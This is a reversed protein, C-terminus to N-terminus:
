VNTTKSNKGNSTKSKKSMKAMQVISRTLDADSCAERVAQVLRLIAIHFTKRIKKETACREDCKEQAKVFEQIGATWGLAAAENKKLDAQVRKTFRELDAINTNTQELLSMTRQNTAAIVLCAQHLTENDERLRTNSEKLEAIVQLRSQHLDHLRQEEAHVSAVMEKYIRKRERQKYVEIKELEVCHLRQINCLKAQLTLLLRKQRGFWGRAMAQLVITARSKVLWQRSQFGRATAQLVTAAQAELQLREQRRKERQQVRYKKIQIWGRVAAQVKTAPAILHRFFVAKSSAFDFNNNDGLTLSQRRFSVVKASVVNEHGFSSLSSTSATSATEDSAKIVFSVTTHKKVVTDSLSARRSTFSPYQQQQKSPSKYCLEQLDQLDNSNTRNVFPLCRTTTNMTTTTNQFNQKLRPKQFNIHALYLLGKPIERCDRIRM